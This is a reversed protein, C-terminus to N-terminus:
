LTITAATGRSAVLPRRGPCAHRRRTTSSSSRAGVPGPGRRTASARCRQFAWGTAQGVLYSRARCSAARLPVSRGRFACLFLSGALSHTRAAARSSRPNVATASQNVPLTTSALYSRTEGHRSSHSHDNIDPFIFHITFSLTRLGLPHPFGSDPGGPCRYQSRSAM